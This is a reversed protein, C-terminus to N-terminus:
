WVLAGSAWGIIASAAGVIATMVLITILIGTTKNSLERSDSIKGIALILGAIAFAAIMLIIIVALIGGVANQITPMFPFYTWNPQIDPM